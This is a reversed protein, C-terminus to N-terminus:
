EECTLFLRSCCGGDGRGCRVEQWCLVPPGLRHEMGVVQSRISPVPNHALVRTDAVRNDEEIGEPSGLM